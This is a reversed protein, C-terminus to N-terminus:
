NKFGNREAIERLIRDINDANTAIGTLGDTIRDVTGIASESQDAIGKGEATLNSITAQASSLQNSLQVLGSALQQNLNTLESIRNKYNTDNTGTFLYVAGAGILVAFVYSLVIATIKWM